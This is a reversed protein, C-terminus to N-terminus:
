RRMRRVYFYKFLLFCFIEKFITKYIVNRCIDNTRVKFFNTFLDQMSQVNNFLLTGPLDENDKVRPVM